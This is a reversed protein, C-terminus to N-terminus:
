TVPVICHNVIKFCANYFVGQAAIYGQLQNRYICIAGRLGQRHTARRKRREESYDSTQEECRHIQM